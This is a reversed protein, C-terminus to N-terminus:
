RNPGGYDAIARAIREDQALKRVRRHLEALEDGTIQPPVGALLVRGNEIIMAIGDLKSM